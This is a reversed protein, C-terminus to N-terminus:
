AGPADSKERAAAQALAGQQVKIVVQVTGAPLAVPLGGNSLTLRLDRESLVINTTNEIHMTVEKELEGVFWGMSEGDGTHGYYM